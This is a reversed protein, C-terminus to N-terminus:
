GQRVEAGHGALGILMAVPIVLTVSFGGCFIVLVAGVTLLVSTAYNTEPKLPM